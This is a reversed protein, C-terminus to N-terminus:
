AVLTPGTHRRDHDSILAEVRRQELEDGTGLAIELRTELALRAEYADLDANSVRRLYTIRSM